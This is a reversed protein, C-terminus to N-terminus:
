AQLIRWRWTVSGGDPDLSATGDLTAETGVAASLVRPAVARARHDRDSRPDDGAAAEAGDGVGDADSDAERPLTGLALEETNTLGDGDPDGAADDRGPDLGLPVEWGDPLGD